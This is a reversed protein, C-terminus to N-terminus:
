ASTMSEFTFCLAECEEKHNTSMIQKWAEENRGHFRLYSMDNGAIPNFELSQGIQPQDITCIAVSKAKKNEWSRHRVEIFKDYGEFEDIM